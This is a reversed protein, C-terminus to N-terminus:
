AENWVGGVVGSSDVFGSAREKLLLSEIKVICSDQVSL